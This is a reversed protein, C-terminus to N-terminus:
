RENVARSSNLVDPMRAMASRKTEDDIHTYSSSVAASAHGILDMAIAANVGANKLLSTATHRLAHFSLEHVVRRKSEHAPESQDKSRRVHAPVLGASALLDHFQRSLSGVRGLRNVSEYARPFVPAALNEGAPLEDTIFHMLPSCIPIRQTRETKQTVLCIEGQGLDLNAWTLRVLDGLRQGTYLGFVILGKWESGEAARL